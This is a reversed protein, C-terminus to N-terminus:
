IDSYVREQLAVFVDERVRINAAQQIPVSLPLLIMEVPSDTGQWDEAAEKWKRGAKEMAPRLAAVLQLYPLEQSSGGVEQALGRSEAAEILLLRTFKVFFDREQSTWNDPELESFGVADDLVADLADMLRLQDEDKMYRNERQAGRHAQVGPETEPELIARRAEDGLDAGVLAWRNGRWEVDLERAMQSALLEGMEQDNDAFDEARILLRVEQESWGRPNFVEARTIVWHEAQIREAFLKRASTQEPLNLSFKRKQYSQGVGFINKLQDTGCRTCRHVKQGECIGSEIDRVREDCVICKLKM